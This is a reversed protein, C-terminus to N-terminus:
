KLSFGQILSGDQPSTPPLITDVQSVFMIFQSLAM